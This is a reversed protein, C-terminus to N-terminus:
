NQTAPATEKPKNAKSIEETEIGSQVALQRVLDPTMIRMFSENISMGLSMGALGRRSDDDKQKARSRRAAIFSKAYQLGESRRNLGGTRGVMLANGFTLRELDDVQDDIPKDNEIPTLGSM